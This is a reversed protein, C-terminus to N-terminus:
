YAGMARVVEYINYRYQGNKLYKYPIKGGKRWRSITASKCGFYRAVETVTWLRNCTCLM